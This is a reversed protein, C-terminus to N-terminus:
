ITQKLDLGDDSDADVDERIEVQKQTMSKINGEIYQMPKRTKFYKMISIQSIQNFNDVATYHIIPANLVMAVILMLTMLISLIKVCVNVATDHEPLTGAQKKKKHKKQEPM